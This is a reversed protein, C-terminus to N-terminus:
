PLKFVSPLCICRQSLHLLPRTVSLARRPQTRCGSVALSRSGSGTWPGQWSPSLSTRRGQTQLAVPQKGVEKQGSGRKIRMFVWGPLCFPCQGMQCIPDSLNLSSPPAPPLLTVMRSTRVGQLHVAGGQSRSSQGWFADQFCANCSPRICINQEGKGAWFHLLNGSM